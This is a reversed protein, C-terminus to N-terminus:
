RQEGWDTVCKVGDGEFWYQVCVDVSKNKGVSGFRRHM